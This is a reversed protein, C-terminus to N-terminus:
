KKYQYTKCGDEVDLLQVKINRAEKNEVRKGKWVKVEISVRRSIFV